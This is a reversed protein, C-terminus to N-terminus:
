RIKRVDSVDFGGDHIQTEFQVIDESELQSLVGRFEQVVLTRARKSGGTEWEFQLTGDVADMLHALETRELTDRGVLALILGGWRYAAKNVGRMVMAIDNWSMEDSIGAVLDTISDIVVLNGSAHESLYNGLATLVSERNHREGLDQLTTAEGQYWERPIPSPRFYTASLDHFRIRDTAADVLSRDFVYSMERRLSREDDTFSLYHVESPPESDEHLDGYYLDFLDDDAEYVANMTASTFMFERAGAGPEGALLVVSGPPAGGDVIRDLRSVGFPISSM